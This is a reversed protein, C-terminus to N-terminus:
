PTDDELDADLPVPEITVCLSRMFADLFAPPDMKQRIFLNKETEPPDSM